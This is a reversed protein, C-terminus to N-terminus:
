GPMAGHLGRVPLWRDIHEFTFPLEPDDRRKGTHFGLIMLYRMSARHAATAPQAPQRGRGAAGGDMTQLNRVAAELAADPQRGCPKSSPRDSSTFPQRTTLRILRRNFRAVSMMASVSRLVLSLASCAAAAAAPCADDDQRHALGHQKGSHHQRQRDSPRRGDRGRLLRNAALPMDADDQLGIGRDFIRRRLLQMPDSGRGLDQAVDGSGVARMMHDALAHPSKAHDLEEGAIREQHRADLLDADRLDHRGLDLRADGAASRARSAICNSGFTGGSIAAAISLM